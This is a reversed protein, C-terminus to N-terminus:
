TCLPVSVTTFLGPSLSVNVAGTLSENSLISHCWRESSYDWTVTMTDGDHASSALLLMTPAAPRIPVTEVVSSAIPNDEQRAYKLSQFAVYGIIAM